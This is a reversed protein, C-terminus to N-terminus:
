RAEVGGGGEEAGELFQAHNATIILALNRQDINNNTNNILTYNCVFYM